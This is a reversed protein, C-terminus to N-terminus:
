RSPALVQRLATSEARAMRVAGRVVTVLGLAVPGWLVVYTDGIGAAVYGFVTVGLGVLLLLIGVLVAKRGARREDAQFFQVLDVAPAAAAPVFPVPAPAPAAVAAGPTFVGPAPAPVPARWEAVPPQVAPREPTLEHLAAFAAARGGPAQDHAPSPHGGALVLSPAERPAPVDDDLPELAPVHLGSPASPAAPAETWWVHDSPAPPWSPDPQWGQPPTWGPPPTPWGPPSNFIPM